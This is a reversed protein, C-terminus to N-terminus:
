RAAARREDLRTGSTNRPGRYLAGLTAIAESRNAPSLHMYRQTTKLDAHGALEKIAM